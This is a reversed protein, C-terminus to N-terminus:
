SKVKPKDSQIIHKFYHMIQLVTWCLVRHGADAIFCVQKSVALRFEDTDLYLYKFFNYICLPFFRLTNSTPSHLM